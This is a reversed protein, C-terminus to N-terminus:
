DGTHSVRVDIVRISCLRRLEHREWCWKDFTEPHEPMINLVSSHGCTFVEIL